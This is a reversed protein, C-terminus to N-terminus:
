SPIRGYTPSGWITRISLDTAESGADAVKNDGLYIAVHGPWFVLDGPQRISASIPTAWAKLAASTRYPVKYGSQKLVEWVFGSCDVGTLLSKGGWVYQTLPNNVVINRAVEAITLRSPPPPLQAVAPEQPKPPAPKTTTPKPTTKTTTPPSTTTTVVVVPIEQTDSLPPTTPPETVKTSPEPTDNIRLALSPSDGLVPFTDTDPGLDDLIPESVSVANTTTVVTTGAAVFTLIWRSLRRPERRRHRGGM